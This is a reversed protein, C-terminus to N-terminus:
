ELTINNENKFLLGSFNQLIKYDNIKTIIFDNWTNIVGSVKEKWHERKIGRSVDSFWFNESTKLPILLSCQSPFPLVSLLHKVPLTKCTFMSTSNLICTFQFFNLSVRFGILNISLSSFVIRPFTTIQSFIPNFYGQFTIAAM